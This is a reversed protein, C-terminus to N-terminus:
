EGEDEELLVISPETLFGYMQTSSWSPQFPPLSPVGFFRLRIADLETCDQIIHCAREPALGCLRCAIAPDLPGALSQPHTSNVLANQRRLFCHGTLFRVLRSFASREWQLLLRSLQRDPWPFWIKTQSLSTATYQATWRDHIGDRILLKLAPKPIPAGVLPKTTTVALKALRDAEENGPFGAHAKVYRLSVHFERGLLDLSEACIQTTKSTHDTRALCRLSAQSDSYFLVARPGDYNPLFDRLLTAAASIACVEAQFVTNREALTYSAQLLPSGFQDYIAVGSGAPRNPSKSGDTYVHVAPVQAPVGAGPAFTSFDVAFNQNPPNCCTSSTLDQNLLTSRQKAVSQTFCTSFAFHSNISQLLQLKQM